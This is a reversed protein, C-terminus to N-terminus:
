RLRRDATRCWRFTTEQLQLHCPCGPLLRQDPSWYTSSCWRGRLAALAVESRDYKVTGTEDCGSDRRPEERMSDAVIWERLVQNDVTRIEYLLDVCRAVNARCREGRFREQRISQVVNSRQGSLARSRFGTCEEQKSGANRTSGSHQAPLQFHLCIWRMESVQPRTRRVRGKKRAIAICANSRNAIRITARTPGAKVRRKWWQAKM